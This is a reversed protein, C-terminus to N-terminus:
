QGPAMRRGPQQVSNGLIATIVLQFLEQPDNTSGSAGKSLALTRHEPLNSGTYIIFPVDIREHKLRDLLTYGARPDPPRGMDSIVADFRRARLKALADDTSESVAVRIGLAELAAAEYTNNAPRDDVWLISSGSLRRVASPGSAGEVADAISRLDSETVAASNADDADAQRAKAVGLAAASELQQRTFSGELGAIKLRIESASKVFDKVDRGFYVLVATVVAPWALTTLLSAILQAIQMDRKIANYQAPWASRPGPLAKAAFLSCDYAALLRQRELEGLDPVLLATEALLCGSEVSAVFGLPAADVQEIQEGHPVLRVAGLLHPQEATEEVPDLRV